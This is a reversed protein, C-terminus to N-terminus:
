KGRLGAAIGAALAALLMPGEHARTLRSMEALLVEAAAAPDPASQRPQRLLRALMLAMMALALLAAAVILPAGAGGVRPEAYIWLAALAWGIAAMASGAALVVALAAGFLRWAPPRRPGATAAEALAIVLGAIDRM